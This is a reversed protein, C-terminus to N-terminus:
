KRQLIFFKDLPIMETKETRSQATRMYKIDYSESLKFFKEMHIGPIPGSTPKYQINEYQKENGIEFEIYKLGMYKKVPINFFRGAKFTDSQKMDSAERIISEDVQGAVTFNTYYCNNDGGWANGNGRYVFGKSRGVQIDVTEGSFDDPLQINGKISCQVEGKTALLPIFKTYDFGISDINVTDKVFDKKKDVECNITAKGYIASGIQESANKAAMLNTALLLSMGIGIKKMTNM